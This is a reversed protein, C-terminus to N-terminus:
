EALLDNLMESKLAFGGKVVVLDGESLGAAVEVTAADSRGLRVDRRAFRGGGCAVFAFAAGEHHQIAALPVQLVPADQGCDFQVDVFMGPKLLGQANDAAALLRVARTEDSVQHGVTLVKAPFERQPYGSTRFRLTANELRALSPLDKEFIDARLWLTSLDALEVLTTAEDVHQALLAPRAIVTAAFPARVAYYAVRQGEAIPDMSDIAEGDYGLILLQSRAIAAAGEAEQLRQQAVRLRQQVDFRMQELLARYAAQASDHEALAHLTRKEPLVGQQGLSHVRKHDAAARKVRALATVLQERYSGLPRDRFQTEIEEPSMGRELAALLDVVNDHVVTEWQCMQRAGHLNLRERALALKAEGVQRSDIYALVQNAEVTDGLEVCIERVVGEVLSHVRATRSGHIELRGTVQLRRPLPDRRVPQTEIGLSDLKESSIQLPTAGEQPSAPQRGDESSAVVSPLTDESTAVAPAPQRGMWAAGAVIIILAITGIRAGRSGALKRFLSLMKM